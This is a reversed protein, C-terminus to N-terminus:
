IPKISLKYVAVKFLKTIFYIAIINIASKTGM